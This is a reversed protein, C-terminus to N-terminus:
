WLHIFLIESPRKDMFLKLGALEKKMDVFAVDQRYFPKNEKM